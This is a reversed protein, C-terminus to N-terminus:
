SDIKWLPLNECGSRAATKNEKELGLRYQICPLLKKWEDEALKGLLSIEIEENVEEQMYLNMMVASLILEAEENDINSNDILVLCKTNRSISAIAKSLQELLEAEPQEWDPFMILNIEKFKIGGVKSEKVKKLFGNTCWTLNHGFFDCYNSDIEYVGEFDSLFEELAKLPGGNYLESEGLDAIIGDEVVIYEGERLYPHFFELVRITTEYFHDADEIVLLPRPLSNIFDPKLVDELARGSGELFTVRRHSVATVKRIDISYIHGDIGFNDLLDGFWVASGGCYSGIEIITKPKLNGLLLPYLAFDFPNKVMPIGRYSYNLSANQISRLTGDDLATNWNRQQATMDSIGSVSYKQLHQPLSWSIKPDPQHIVPEVNGRWAVGMIQMTQYVMTNWGKQKLYDLGAAVDPSVLDHFLILADEEALEECIIADNLPGPYEHNGDIFILSWKRKFQAAIEEVKEPSYGPILKVSDLVGAAQLSNKVSEYFEPKELIPDIIDLEVGALALHCASWGMWCGIELAKKGKFLIATNYLIHAEDRSVFGVLPYRRDAYWNHPIERRLYPWPCGSTDGIIRNPFCRDPQIIKLGPSVYDGVISIQNETNIPDSIEGASEQSKQTYHLSVEVLDKDTTKLEIQNDKVVGTLHLVGIPAHPLNPEVFCSKERDWAPFGFHCTWNCWAPLMETQDFLGFNYVALNLAFQDTMLSLSQQLGQEVCEAWVQWHAADKHLAFIGANLLPYSYLNEAIEKGFTIEYQHYVWQWWFEGLGGYQIQSGRDIEPVIALGGRKAGQIFLDIAKWDQVWADADIWLYIDFDPFYERLLPRALLGKLYHPAENQNPFNFEWNPQKIINVQKQLWQLQETTCGLDFFGVIANRGQPKERISLITGQVLEFYEANAATIIISNM